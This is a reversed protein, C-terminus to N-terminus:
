RGTHRGRVTQAVLLLAREILPYGLRTNRRVELSVEGLRALLAELQAPTWARLAAAVMRERSFHVGRKMLVDVPTGAQVALAMTHLAATSRILAGAIGTATTGAARLRAFGTEVTAPDGALAADIVADMAPNTADTVVAMVDPVDIRPQRGAYLILKEIESRSARRDGGILSALLTRAAPTIAIGARRTEDDILRALDRPGDAYCPLVAVVESEECQSRLAATKKLDGAEIIIRCDPGPPAKLVRAVAPAVRDSAKVHVARRGGFLPVTHAEEVLREPEAALTEASLRALAFPDAPDDVALRVLADARESVLGVDPGYLLVVPMAPDPRAMFDHIAAGRIAVM